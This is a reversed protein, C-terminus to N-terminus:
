KVPRIFIDMAKKLIENEEKLDFIEQQLKHLKEDEPLLNKVPSLM